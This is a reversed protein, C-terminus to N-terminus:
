PVILREEKRLGQMNIWIHGQTIFVSAWVVCDIQFYSQISKIFQFVHVCDKNARM